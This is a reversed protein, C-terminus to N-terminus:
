QGDEEHSGGCLGEHMEADLETAQLEEEGKKETDGDQEIVGWVFYEQEEEDWRVWKCM